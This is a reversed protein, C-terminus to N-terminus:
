RAGSRHRRTTGLCRAGAEDGREGVVGVMENGTVEVTAAEFRVDSREGGFEGGTGDVGDNVVEFASEGSEGVVRVPVLSRCSCEGVQEVDFDAFIRCSTIRHSARPTAIITKIPAAPKMRHAWVLGPVVWGSRGSLRGVAAGTGDLVGTRGGVGDDRAPVVVGAVVGAGDGVPVVSVAPVWEPVYANVTEVPTTITPATM